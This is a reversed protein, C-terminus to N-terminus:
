SQILSATAAPSPTHAAGGSADVMRSVIGVIPRQPRCAAARIPKVLQAGGSPLPKVRGAKRRGAAAIFGPFIGTDRGNGPAPKDMRGAAPPRLGAAIQRAPSHGKRRDRPRVQNEPLAAIHGGSLFLGGPIVANDNGGQGGGQGRFRFYDAAVQPLQRRCVVGKHRQIGSKQGVSGIDPQGLVPRLFNDQVDSVKRLPRRGLIAAIGPVAVPRGNNGIGASQNHGPPIGPQRQQFTVDAGAAVAPRGAIKGIGNGLHRHPGPRLHLMIPQQRFAPVGKM